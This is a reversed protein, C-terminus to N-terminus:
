YQNQIASFQGGLSRTESLALESNRAMTIGLDFSLSIFENIKIASAARKSIAKNIEGAFFFFRRMDEILSAIVKQDM